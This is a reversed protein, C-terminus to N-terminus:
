NTFTQHKRLSRVRGGGECVSAGVGALVEVVKYKGFRVATHLPTYGEQFLFFILTINVSM